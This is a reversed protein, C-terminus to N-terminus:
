TFFHCFIVDKVCSLRSQPLARQALTTNWYKKACSAAPTAARNSCDCTNNCWSDGRTLIKCRSAGRTICQLASLPVEQEVSLRVEESASLRMELPMESLTKGQSAARSAGQTIPDLGCCHSKHM